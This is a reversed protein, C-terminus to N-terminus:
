KRHSNMAMFRRSKSLKKSANMEARALAEICDDSIGLEALLGLPNEWESVEPWMAYCDDGSLNNFITTIENETKEIVEDGAKIKIVPRTVVDPVDPCAPCTCPKEIYKDVYVIKPVEVTVTRVDDACACEEKVRVIKTEVTPECKHPVPEEEEDIEPDPKPPWTPVPDEPEDIPQDGSSPPQVKPDDPDEQSTIPDPGYPPRTPPPTPEEIGPPDSVIIIEDGPGGIGPPFVVRIGGVKGGGASPHDTKNKLRGDRVEKEVKERLKMKRSREYDRYTKFERKIGASMPGGRATKTMSVSSPVESMPLKSTRKRLMAPNPVIGGSMMGPKVELGDLAFRVPNFKSLLNLLRSFQRRREVPVSEIVAKSLRDMGSQAREVLRKAAPRAVLKTIPTTPIPVIESALNFYDEATGEWIYGDTMAQPRYKESGFIPAWAMETMQLVTNAPNSPDRMFKDFDQKSLGIHALEQNLASFGDDFETKFQDFSSKAWKPWEFNVGMQGPGNELLQKREFSTGGAFRREKAESLVKQRDAETEAELALKHVHDVNEIYDAIRDLRESESETEGEAEVMRSVAAQISEDRQRGFDKDDKQSVAAQVAEDRHRGFSDKSRQNRSAVSHSGRGDDDESKESTGEQTSDEEEEAPEDDEDEQEDEEEDHSHDDEPDDDFASGGGAHGPM